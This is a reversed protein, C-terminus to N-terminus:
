GRTAKRVARREAPTYKATQKGSKTAKNKALSGAAKEGASLSKRAKEPLYRSKGEKGVYDWKEKSWKSLSNSPKKAGAYKGGKEKYIKTALQMARASHKGGMKAKAEAKAKEWLKPNTKKATEAM